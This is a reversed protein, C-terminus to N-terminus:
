VTRIETFIDRIRSNRTIIPIIVPRSPDNDVLSAGSTVGSVYLHFILGTKYAGDVFNAITSKLYRALLLLVKGTFSVSGNALPKSPYWQLKSLIPGLSWPWWPLFIACHIYESLQSLFSFNSIDISFLQSLWKVHVEAFYINKHWGLMVFNSNYTYWGKVMCADCVPCWSYIM